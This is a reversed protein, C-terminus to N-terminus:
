QRQFEPAVWFREPWLGLPGPVANQLHSNFLVTVVPHVLLTSAQQEYALTHLQRWLAARKAPDFEVSAAAALRDAEPDSWHGDNDAGESHLLPYPDGSARLSQVGLLGDWEGRSKEAVFQPFERNHLDLDVGALKCNGAFLDLARRIPESGNPALLVLHLPHGQAPDFGAERLLRRAAPPDCALPQLDRPYEPRDPKALAVAPRAGAGFLPAITATDFLMGLARRVRADDFPKRRCNWMVRLVGNTRYDYSLPRYDKALDPRQQLLSLPDASPFWDIERRLLAHFMGVAPDRFLLRVGAFNWCGPEAARRWHHDNRVMLLEQRPQWTGGGEPPNRLAYPGTGPGCENQIQQLLSAFADSGVAPAPEGRQAALRGIRDVFFSRQAVIWAEGVTRLAAFHRERFTVRLRHEDLVEVDAVRRFADGCFGFVAHGNKALEWGFVVDAMTMPSGDAFQVGDRLTFLCSMGDDAPAFAAALAPRLEGTAPDSDLLTEHTLGLVYRRVAAGAATFPNVNDPEETVGAYVHGQPVGGLYVVQQTAPSAAPAGSRLMVRLGLGIGLLAFLIAILVPLRRM